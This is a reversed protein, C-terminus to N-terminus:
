VAVETARATRREDLRRRVEDMTRQTIPFFCALVFALGTFVIFPTFALWRLRHLVWDPQQVMAQALHTNFGSFAVMYGGMLMCISNEIKSVFSMVASFLGERREGSALEDIDCIDPMVSAMFM